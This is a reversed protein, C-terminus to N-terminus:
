IVKQGINYATEKEEKEKKEPCWSWKKDEDEKPIWAKKKKKEPEASLYTEDFLYIYFGCYTL